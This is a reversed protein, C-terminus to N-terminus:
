ELNAHREFMMESTQNLKNMLAMVIADYVLLSLQEFGSGM